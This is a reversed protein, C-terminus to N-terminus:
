LSSYGYLRILNNMCSVEFKRLLFLFFVLFHSLQILTVIIIPLKIRHFSSGILTKEYPMNKIRTISFYDITLLRGGTDRVKNTNVVSPIIQIPKCINPFKFCFM